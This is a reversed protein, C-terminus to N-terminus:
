AVGQEGQWIGPRFSHWVSCMFFCSTLDCLSLVFNEMSILYRSDRSGIVIEEWVNRGAFTNKLRSDGSLNVTCGNEVM